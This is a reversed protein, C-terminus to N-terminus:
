FIDIFEDQEYEVKYIEDICHLWWTLPAESLTILSTQILKERLELNENKEFNLYYCGNVMQSKMKDKEYSWQDWLRGGYQFSLITMLYYKLVNESSSNQFRFDDVTFDDLHMELESEVDEVFYAFDDEEILDSKYESRIALMGLNVLDEISSSAYNIEESWFITDWDDVLKDLFGERNDIAIKASNFAKFARWQLIKHLVDDQKKPEIIRSLYFKNKLLTEKLSKDTNKAYVEALVTLILLRSLATEDELRLSLLFNTAKPIVQTYEKNLSVMTQSLYAALCLSTIASDNEWSGNDLQHNKLFVLENFELSIESQLITEESMIKQKKKHDSNKEEGFISFSIILFILLRMALEEKEFIRNRSAKQL